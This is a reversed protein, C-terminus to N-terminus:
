RISFRWGVGAQCICAKRRNYQCLGGCAWVKITRHRFQPTIRMCQEFCARRRAIQRTSAKRPWGSAGCSACPRACRARKVTGRGRALSGGCFEGRTLGRWVSAGPPAFEKAREHTISCPMKRAKTNQSRAAPKRGKAQSRALELLERRKKGFARRFDSKETREQAFTEKQKNFEEADRRELVGLAEDVQLIESGLASTADDEVQRPAVPRMAFSGFCPGHCSALVICLALWM